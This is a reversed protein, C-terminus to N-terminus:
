EVQMGFADDFEFNPVWDDIGITQALGLGSGIVSYAFSMSAAVVSLWKTSRFNPIQSAIIQLIGFLIMYTKLGYECAAERGHEHYCNSQEIARDGVYFFCRGM